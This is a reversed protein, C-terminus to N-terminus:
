NNYVKKIKYIFVKNVRKIKFLMNMLKKKKNKVYDPKQNHKKFVRLKMMNIMRLTINRKVKKLIFHIKITLNAKHNRVKIQKSKKNKM